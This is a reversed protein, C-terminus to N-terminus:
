FPKDSWVWRELMRVAPQVTEGTIGHASLCSIGWAFLQGRTEGLKEEQYGPAGRLIRKSKGRDEVEVNMQKRLSSCELQSTGETGVGGVEASNLDGRVQVRAVVKLVGVAERRDSGSQDIGPGDRWGVPGPLREVSDGSSHDGMALGAFLQWRPGTHYLGLRM